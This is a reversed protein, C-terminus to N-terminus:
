RIWLRRREEERRAKAAYRAQRDATDCTAARWRTIVRALHRIESTRLRLIRCFSQKLHSLDYTTMPWSDDASSRILVPNLFM